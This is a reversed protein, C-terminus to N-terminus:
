FKFQKVLQSMEELDHNMTENAEQSTESANLNYKSSDAIKQSSQAMEHTVTSQEDVASAIEINMQTIKEVYEMVQHLTHSSDKATNICVESNSVGDKMANVVRKTGTQLNDIIDHIETTSNQTRQALTRVEDAVVAFGRGQEGARAAEIAANLALLNTQKAIGEIVSLVSAVKNSNEEMNSVEIQTNSLAESLQHIANINKTMSNTAQVTSQETSKAASSSEQARDAVGSVSYSLQNAASALMETEALQEQSQQVTSAISNSMEQSHKIVNNNTASVQRVITAIKDVFLNFAKSFQALENRGNTILRKTLDGDGQSIDKMLQVINQLPKTISNSIIWAFIFIVTMISGAISVMSILWSYFSEQEDKRYVGTMVVWDWPEFYTGYAMKRVARKPLNPEDIRRVVIAKDEPLVYFYYEIFGSLTEPYNEKLIGLTSYTPKNIGIRRGMDIKDAKDQIAAKERQEPTDDEHTFPFFPHAILLDHTQNYIYFYNRASLALSNVALRAQQRAEIEGIKGEQAMKHFFGLIHIASQTLKIYESQKLETFQDQAKKVAILSTATLGILCLGVLLWIRQKILLKQLISNM